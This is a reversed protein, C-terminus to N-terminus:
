NFLLKLSYKNEVSLMLKALRKKEPNKKLLERSKRERVRNAITASSPAKLSLALCQEKVKKIVREVTAGPGAYYEFSRNSSM